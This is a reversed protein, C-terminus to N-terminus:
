IDVDADIMGHCTDDVVSDGRQLGPIGNSEPYLWISFVCDPQCLDIAIYSPVGAEHHAPAGGFVDIIVHGNGTTSTSYTTCHSAAAFPAIFALALCSALLIPRLPSEGM